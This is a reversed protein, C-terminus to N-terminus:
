QEAFFITYEFADDNEPLGSPNAKQLILSGRDSVSTDAEFELTAEFPVFEETMWEDQAEAYGEAIIRGDWDTLVVPFTAEFYWQGRAEGEITLPTSIREEPLPSSVRIRDEYSVSSTAMSPEDIAILEFTELMAEQTRRDREDISGKHIIDDGMLPDCEEDSIRDGERFCEINHDRIPVGAFVFGAEAWADNAAGINAFTAYATGDRLLYDTASRTEISFDIHSDRKKGFLGETPIGEPYVSVHTAGPSHHTFPLGSEDSGPKYINFKPTIPDDPAEHVIWEPPHMVTFGYTTNTYTEWDSTDIEIPDESETDTPTKDVNTTNQQNQWATFWWVGTAGIIILILASGLIKQM